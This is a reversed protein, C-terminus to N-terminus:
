NLSSKKLNVLENLLNNLLPFILDLELAKDLLKQSDEGGVFIKYAKTADETTVEGDLLRDLEDTEGLSMERLKIKYTVDRAVVELPYDLDLKLM